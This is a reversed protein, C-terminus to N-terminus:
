TDRAGIMATWASELSYKGIYPRDSSPDWTADDGADFMQETPVKPVIVYGAADLACLITKTLTPITGADNWPKIEEEPGSLEVDSAMVATTDLKLGLGSLLADSIVVSTSM